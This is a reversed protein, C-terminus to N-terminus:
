RRERRARLTMLSRSRCSRWAPWRAPPSARRSGCRPRAREAARRLEEAPPPSRWRRRGPRASSAPSRSPTPCAATATGTPRSRTCRQRGRLGAREFWTATSAGREPFLMWLTPWRARSGAPRGCRARDGRRRRGPAARPLGRRHRAAPRALVRHQRGVRLPRVRRRRVAAGRRRRAAAPVGALAPRRGARALQHPSQDLMTVRAPDVHEVIGETTFGTGAGADLTELDRGDLRAAALAQERM